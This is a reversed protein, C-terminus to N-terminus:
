ELSAVAVCLHENYLLGADLIAQDKQLEADALSDACPGYRYPHHLAILLARFETRSSTRCEAVVVRMVERKVM